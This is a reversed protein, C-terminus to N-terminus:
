TGVEWPKWQAWYPIEDLEAKVESILEEIQGEGIAAEVARVSTADQSPASAIAALRREANAIIESRLACQPLEQQATSVQLECLKKLVPIGEPIVNYGTLGTSQKATSFFVSSFRCLPASLPRVSRFM